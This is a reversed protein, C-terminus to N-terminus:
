AQSASWRACSTTWTTSGRAIDRLPLEAIFRTEKAATPRTQDQGESGARLIRATLVGAIRCCVACPRKRITGIGRANLRVGRLGYRTPGKGEVALHHIDPGGNGVTSVARVQVEWSHGELHAFPEGTALAVGDSHVHL